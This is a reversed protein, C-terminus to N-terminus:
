NIILAKIWIRYQKINVSYQINVIKPTLTTFIVHLIGQYIVRARLRYTRMEFKNPLCM